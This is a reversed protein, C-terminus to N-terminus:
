EAGLAIRVRDVTQLGQHLATAALIAVIAAVVILEVLSAGRRRSM